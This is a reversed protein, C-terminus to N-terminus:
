KALPIGKALEFRAIADLKNEVQLYRFVRKASLGKAFQKMYRDLINLRKKQIDFYENVIRSAQEDTLTQYAAAYAVIIKAARQNVQFLEEQLNKYIPWFFTAEDDSFEMNEMVILKKQDFMIKKKLTAAENAQALAPLLVFICCLCIFHKKQKLM